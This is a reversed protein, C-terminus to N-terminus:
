FRCAFAQYNSLAQNARNIKTEYDNALYKFGSQNRYNELKEKSAELRSQKEEHISSLKKWTNARTDALEKSANLKSATVGPVTNNFERRARGAKIQTWTPLTVREPEAKQAATTTQNFKRRNRGAEIQKKASSTSTKKSSSGSSSPKKTSGGDNILILQNNIPM